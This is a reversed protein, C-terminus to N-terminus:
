CCAMWAHLLRTGTRPKSVTDHRPSDLCGFNRIFSSKGVGTTGIVLLCGSDLDMSGRRRSHDKWHQSQEHRKWEKRMKFRCSKPNSDCCYFPRSMGNETGGKFDSTRDAQSEVTSEGAKNLEMERLLDKRIAPLPSGSDLAGQYLFAENSQKHRVFVDSFTLPSSLASLVHEMTHTLTSHEEVLEEMQYLKMATSVAKMM